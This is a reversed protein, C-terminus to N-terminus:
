VFGAASLLYFLALTVLGAVLAARTGVAMRERPPFSARAEDDHKDIKRVGSEPLPDAGYISDRVEIATAHARARRREADAREEGLTDDLWAALDVPSIDIGVAVCYADLDRLMAGASSYRERRRKALAKHLIGLLREEEPLGHLAMPPVDGRRASRLAPKGKKPRMRRGALLEWMMIGVAYVDSRKDLKRGRAQEPSMYGTKGEIRDEPVPPMSTASAIGFDCLRVDGDFSLLVNSPTVDRHVVRLKNREDDRARHAHDLGRLVERIIHLSSAVPLALKRRSCTRLLDRLDLGDVHEFVAYPTGDVDRGVDITRAINAHRLNGVLEAEAVLLEDYRDIDSIDERVLKVVVLRGDEARALYADAMGGRGIHDVLIYGGISRPLTSPAVIARATNGM